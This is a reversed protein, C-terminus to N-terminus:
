HYCKIDSYKDPAPRTDEIVTAEDSNMITEIEEHTMISFIFLEGIDRMTMNLKNIGYKEHEKLVRLFMNFSYTNNFRLTPHYLPLSGDRDHNVYLTDKVSWIKATFDELDAWNTSFKDSKSINLKFHYNKLSNYPGFYGQRVVEAWIEGNELTFKVSNIEKSNFASYGYSYIKSFTDQHTPKEIPRDSPVWFEISTLPQLQSFDKDSISSHEM